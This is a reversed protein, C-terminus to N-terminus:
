IKTIAQFISDQQIMIAIPINQRLYSENHQFRCPSVIGVFIVTSAWYKQLM